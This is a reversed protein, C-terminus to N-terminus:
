GGGKRYVSARPPGVVATGAYTESLDQMVAELMQDPLSKQFVENLRQTEALSRELSFNHLKLDANAHAFCDCQRKEAMSLFQGPTPFSSAMLEHRLQSELQFLNERQEQVVEKLRQHEKQTEHQGQLTILQGLQREYSQRVAKYWSEFGAKKQELDLAVADIGILMVERDAVAQQCHHLAQERLALDQEQREVRAERVVANSEYKAHMEQLATHKATLKNLRGEMDIFQAELNRREENQRGLQARLSAQEAGM